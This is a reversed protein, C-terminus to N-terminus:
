ARSRPIRYSLSPTPEGVALVIAPREGPMWRPQPMEGPAVSFWGSLLSRLLARRIPKTTHRLFVRRVEGARSAGPKAKRRSAIVVAGEDDPQALHGRRSPSVRASDGRSVM